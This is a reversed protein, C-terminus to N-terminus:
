DLKILILRDILAVYEKIYGENELKKIRDYVSTRSMNLRKVLEVIDFKANTQLLRLLEVEQNTLVEM